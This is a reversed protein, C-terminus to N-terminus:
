GYYLRDEIKMFGRVAQSLGYNLPEPPWPFTKRGVFFMKTRETHRGCILEAITRGNQTTMSVGHGICGISFIANHDNGLYGIVPAM